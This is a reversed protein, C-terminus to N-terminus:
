STRYALKILSHVYSLSCSIYTRRLLARLSTLVREDEGLKWGRIDSAPWKINARQARRAASYGRIRCTLSTVVSTRRTLRTVPQSTRTMTCSDEFLRILGRRRPTARERAPHPDLILSPSRSYGLEVGRRAVGVRESTYGKEEGEEDCENISWLVRLLWSSGSLARVAPRSLNRRMSCSTFMRHTSRAANSALTDLQQLLSSRRYLHSARAAPDGFADSLMRKRLTKKFM